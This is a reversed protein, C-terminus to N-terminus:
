AQNWRANARTSAAPTVAKAPSPSDVAASRLARCPLSKNRPTRVGGGAAVLVLAVCPQALFEFARVMDESEDPFPDLREGTDRGADERGHDGPLLGLPVGVHGGVPFAYM